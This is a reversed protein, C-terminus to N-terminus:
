LLRKGKHLLFRRYAAPLVCLKRYRLEQARQGIVRLASACRIDPLIEKVAFACDTNVAHPGVCLKVLRRCLLLDAIGRKGAGGAFHGRIGIGCGAIDDAAVAGCPLDVGAHPEQFIHEALLHLLLDDGFCM